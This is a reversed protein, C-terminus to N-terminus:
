PQTTDNKEDDTDRVSIVNTHPNCTNKKREEKKKEGLREAAVLARIKDQKATQKIFVATYM